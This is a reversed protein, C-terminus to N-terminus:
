IVGIRWRWWRENDKREKWDSRPGGGDSDRKKLGRSLRERDLARGELERGGPSEELEKGGPSEERRVVQTRYDWERSVRRLSLIRKLCAEGITLPIGARRQGNHSGTQTGASGRPLVIFLPKM